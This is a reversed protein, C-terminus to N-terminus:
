LGAVVGRSRIEQSRPRTCACRSRLILPEAFEVLISLIRRVFRHFSRTCRGFAIRRKYFIRLLCDGNQVPAGQKMPPRDNGTPHLSVRGLEVSQQHLSFKQKLHGARSCAWEGSGLSGDHLERITSVGLGIENRYNRLEVRAKLYRAKEVDDGRM